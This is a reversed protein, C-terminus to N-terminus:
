SVKLFDLNYDQLLTMISLIMHNETSNNIKLNGDWHVKQPATGKPPCIGTGSRIRGCKTIINCYMM